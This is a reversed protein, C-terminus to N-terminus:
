KKKPESDDISEMVFNTEQSESAIQWQDFASADPKPEHLEIVEFNFTTGAGKVYYNRRHVPGLKEDIGTVEYCAAKPFARNFSKMVVRQSRSTIKTMGLRDDLLADEALGKANEGGVDSYTTDWRFAWVKIIRTAVGGKIKKTITGWCQDNFGPSTQECEWGRGAPLALRLTGTAARLSKAEGIYSEGPKAGHFHALTLVENYASAFEPDGAGGKKLKSLADLTARLARQLEATEPTDSPKAKRATELVPAAATVAAARADADKDPGAIAYTVASACLAATFVAAAARAAIHTPM